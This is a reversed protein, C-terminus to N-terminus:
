IEEQIGVYVPDGLRVVGNPGMLGLHIGMVPTNRVFKRVEPDEPLRYRPLFFKKSM